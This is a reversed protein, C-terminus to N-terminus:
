AFLAEIDEDEFYGDICFDKYCVTPLLNVNHKQALEIHETADIVIMKIRHASCITQVIPKLIECAPCNPGTFFLLRSRPM